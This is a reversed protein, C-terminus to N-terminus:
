HIGVAVVGCAFLEHTSSFDLGRELEEKQHRYRAEENRLQAETMRIVSEGRGRERLTAIREQHQRMRVQHTRELSALQTRITNENRSRRDIDLETSRHVMEDRIQNMLARATEPPAPTSEWPRGERMMAGVLELSPARDLPQMSDLDLVMPEIFAREDRGREIRHFLGFAYVGHEIEGVPAVALSFAPYLTQSNLEFYGVALAVLPHHHGVFELRDNEYAKDANFTLRVPPRHLQSYFRNRVPAAPLNKVHQVLQFSPELEFIDDGAARLRSDPSSIDLYHEVLGAIDDPALIQGGSRAENLRAEFSPDMFRPAEEELREYERRRTEIAAATQEIRREEEEPTLRKTLLDKTLRGIEDGLISELDGISREFIGIRMHLRQLIRDEITDHLSLNIVVIRPSKQGMRDLRGIRQEVKMPNWPLDYNVLVHCFQFDLGESGVESSLLIQVGSNPDRFRRMRQRREDKDPDGASSPVDGHIVECQYGAQTLRRHLHRLSAKFYSFVLVKADPEEEYLSTLATVLLDFKSDTSRLREAARILREPPSIGEPGGDYDDFDMEEQLDWEEPDDLRGWARALFVDRAAPMCSAVQRQAQVAVLHGINGRGEHQQHVFDTVADYFAREEPTLPASHVFPARIPANEFVDRRMSRCIMGGLLNLERLDDQLRIRDTLSAIGGSSVTDFARLFLPNTAFYTPQIHFAEVLKEQIAALDPPYGARAIREAAVIPANAALREEFVEYSQFEGPDMLRMLYFLNENGLQIPTASLLLGAHAEPLLEAAVKHSLTEPNRLHHAEDIILLDFGIPDQELRERVRRSRLAQLSIIGRFGLPPGERIWRHHMEAFRASSLIEFDEDFREWMEQKWKVTLSAPCVVLVKDLADRARQEILILGAEITKGLGVEDALLLRHKHSDLFKILPKYQHPHFETRSGGISYLTGHTPRSLKRFTLLRVLDVPRGFSSSIFLDEPDPNPEHPVLTAEPRSSRQGSQTRVDYWFTGGSRTAPRVIEGVFGRDNRDQVWHGPEFRPTPVQTDEFSM